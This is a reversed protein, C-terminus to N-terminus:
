TRGSMLQLNLFYVRELQLRDTAFWELNLGVSNNETVVGDKGLGMAVDSNESVENIVYPTSNGNEDTSTSCSYVLAIGLLLVLFKKM